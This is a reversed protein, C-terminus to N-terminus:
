SVWLVTLNIIQNTTTFFLNVIKHPLQSELVLLYIFDILHLRTSVSSDKLDDSPRDCSHPVLRCPIMKIISTKKDKDKLALGTQGPINQLKVVCMFVTIRRYMRAADFM